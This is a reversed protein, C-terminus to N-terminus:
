VSLKDPILITATEIFCEQIFKGEIFLISYSAILHSLANSVKVAARSAKDAHFVNQQEKVYIKVKV